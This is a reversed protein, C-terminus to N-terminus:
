EAPGVGKPGIWPLVRAEGESTCAVGVDHAEALLWACGTVSRTAGGDPADYSARFLMPAQDAQRDFRVTAYGPWARALWRVGERDRAVTWHGGQEECTLGRDLLAAIAADQADVCLEISVFGGAENPSVALNVLGTPDDPVLAADPEISLTTPAPESAPSTPGGDTCAVAGCALVALVMLNQRNM